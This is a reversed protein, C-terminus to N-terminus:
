ERRKIPNVSLIHEDGEIMDNLYRMTHVRCMEDAYVGGNLTVVVAVPDAYCGAVANCRGPWAVKPIRM